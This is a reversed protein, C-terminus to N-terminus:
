SKKSGIAGRVGYKLWGIAIVVGVVGLGITMGYDFNGEAGSMISRVSTVDNTLAHSSVNGIAAAIASLFLFKNKM